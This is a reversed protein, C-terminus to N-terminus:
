RLIQRAHAPPPPPHLPVSTHETQTRLSINERNNNFEAKFMPKGRLKQIDKYITCCKYNAPHDGSSPPPKPNPVNQQTMNDVANSVDINNLVTHNQISAHNAGPAKLYKMTKEQFNM